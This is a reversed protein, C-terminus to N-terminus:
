LVKTLQVLGKGRLTRTTQGAPRPPQTTGLMCYTAQPATSSSLNHFHRAQVLAEV